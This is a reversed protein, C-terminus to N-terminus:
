ISKTISKILPIIGYTGYFAYYTIVIFPVIPLLCVIVILLLITLGIKAITSLDGCILESIMSSPDINIQKKTASAM